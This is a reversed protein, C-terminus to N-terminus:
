GISVEESPYEVQSRKSVPILIAMGATVTGVRGLFMTLIIVLRAFPSLYPTIGTSLGVTGFASVVEFLINLPPFPETILLLFWSIIVLTLSLLFVTYARKVNEWPITRDKFHVNKRELIVASVSLWLVLFTVTKIGGGTGGPSAGIFMLVIIFLLTSPNMKGINLTNFGATRPTVSQFYAGLFKGWFNLPKLTNPNNYELIFIVVTGILILFLTTFLAMKSHLSLHM